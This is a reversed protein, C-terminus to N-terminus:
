RRGSISPVSAGRAITRDADVNDAALQMAKTISLGHQYATLAYSYFVAAPEYGELPLSELWIRAARTPNATAVWADYTERWSPAVFGRLLWDAPAGTVDSIARLHVADPAGIGKEWRGVTTRDAGIRRAFEAIM